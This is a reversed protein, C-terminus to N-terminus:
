ANPPGVHPKEPLAEHARRSGCPHRDLLERTRRGCHRSLLGPLEIARDIDARLTPAPVRLPHAGQERHAVASGPGYRSRLPHGARATLLTTGTGDADALFARRHSAAEALAVDLDAAVLGPLDAPLVAVGVGVDPATLLDAALAVALNLDGGGLDPLVGAGLGVAEAAALPDDTVVHIGEVRCARGAAELTDLAFALALAATRGGMAPRLRTKARDLAKVPVLVTWGRTGRPPHAGPHIVPVGRGPGADRGHDPGGSGPVTSFPPGPSM